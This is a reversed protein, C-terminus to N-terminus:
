IAEIIVLFIFNHPLSNQWGWAECHGHLIFAIEYGLETVPCSEPLAQTHCSLGVKVKGNCLSQGKRKGESLLLFFSFSCCHCYYSGNGLHSEVFHYYILFSCDGTNQGCPKSLNELSYM